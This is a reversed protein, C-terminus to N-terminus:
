SSLAPVSKDEKVFLAPVSITEKVIKDNKGKEETHMLLTGSFIYEFTTSKSGEGKELYFGKEWKGTTIVTGQEDKVTAEGSPVNDEWYGTISIKNKLVTTGYGQRKGAVFYGDYKEVSNMFTGYGVLKGKNFTGVFKEGRFTLEGHGHFELDDNFYGKYM